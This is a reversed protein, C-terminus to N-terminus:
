LITSHRDFLIARSARTQFEFNFFLHSAKFYGLQLIFNLKSAFSRFEALLEIEPKTISFCLFREDDTFSPLEYLNQIEETTLIHLRALHSPKQIETM